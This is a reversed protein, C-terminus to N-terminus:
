YFSSDTRFVLVEQLSTRLSRLPTAWCAAAEDKATPVAAQGQPSRLSLIPRLAMMRNPLQEVAVQMTSKLRASCYQAASSNRKRAPTSSPLRTHARMVYHM